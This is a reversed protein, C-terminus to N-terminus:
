KRHKTIPKLKLLKVLIKENDTTTSIRTYIDKEIKYIEVFDQNNTYSIYPIKDEKELGKGLDISFIRADTDAITNLKYNLGFLIRNITDLNTGVQYEAMYM